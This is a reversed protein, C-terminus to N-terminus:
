RGVPGLALLTARVLSAVMEDVDLGVGVLPEVDANREQVGTEAHVPERPDLVLGDPVPQLPLPPQHLPRVHRPEVQVFPEEVM